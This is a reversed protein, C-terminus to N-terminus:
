ADCRQRARASTAQPCCSFFCSRQRRACHLRRGQLRMHSPHVMHEVREDIRRFMEIRPRYLFFPRFDYAADTPAGAAVADATPRGTV